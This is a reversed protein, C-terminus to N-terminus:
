IFVRRLAASFEGGDKCKPCAFRELQNVELIEQGKEKAYAIAEYYTEFMIDGM